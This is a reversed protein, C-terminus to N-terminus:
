IQLHNRLLSNLVETSKFQMSKHCNQNFLGRTLSIYKPVQATRFLSVVTGPLKSSLWTVSAVNQFSGLTGSRPAATARDKKYGYTRVNYCTGKLLDAEGQGELTGAGRFVARTVFNGLEM